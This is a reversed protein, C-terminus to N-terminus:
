KFRIRPDFIIYSIDTLLLGIIYLLSGLFVMAQVTSFDQQSIANLLFSGLGPIAFFSELLLSGTILLPLSVVVGTLIPIMANKLLHVFLIYIESLGKSRATDMYEKNMEELFITRYFRVEGGIGQIIAIFVPLMLFRISELGFAFGSIPVLKFMKGFVFQFSIIYILSSISMLFICIFVGLTDIMTKHYYALLMAFCVNLILSLVFIPITLFLSPLIRKKIESKIPVGRDSYGFSFVLMKLSKQFLITKRFHEFWQIEKKQSIKIVHIPSPSALSYELKLTLNKQNNFFCWTQSDSSTPLILTEKLSHNSLYLITKTFDLFKFNRNKNLISNSSGNIQLCYNAKDTLTVEFINKPNSAIFLHQTKYGDNYIKPYHLNRSQKWTQIQQWTVHKNGLHLKAMDDPDNLWFFLFFVFINVGIIIPITYLIRKIIYSLM